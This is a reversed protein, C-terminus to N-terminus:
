IDLGKEIPLCSITSEQIEVSQKKKGLGVTVNTSSVCFIGSLPVAAASHQPHPVPQPLTLTACHCLMSIFPAYRVVWSNERGKIVLSGSIPQFDRNERRPDKRPSFLWILFM